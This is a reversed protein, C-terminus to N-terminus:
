GGPNRSSRSFFVQVGSNQLAANCNRLASEVADTMLINSSCAQIACFAYDKLAKASRFRSEALKRVARMLAQWESTNRQLM